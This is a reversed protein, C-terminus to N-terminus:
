KISNASILITSTLRSCDMGDVNNLAISKATDLMDESRRQRQSPANPKSTGLGIITCVISGVNRRRHMM